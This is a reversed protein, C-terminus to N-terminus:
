ELVSGAPLSFGRLFAQADAPAKGQRQVRTLRLAGEGCAVCLKDDIVTGPNSAPAADCVEAALAKIRMGTYEFWVGPWPHFARLNRELQTAPLNWDIRAEDREIKAAYTSGEDPQAWASITGDALGDLAQITLRAGMEALDDHLTGATTAATIPLRDTLLIPGTDLGEDVQMITIGTEDDGAMIARQIPAAGRWRPLLSAHVNICGLRPADLVAKPLILGYAATVAADAELAAFVAQEDASKKLSKPARVPISHEAAFAHVACPKEKQGRGAPRPPQTYACVIEHGADILAALVPVAFDPSGMFILRM